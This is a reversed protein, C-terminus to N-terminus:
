WALTTGGGTGVPVGASAAPAAAGAPATVAALSRAGGAFGSSRRERARAAIVEHIAAAKACAAEIASAKACRSPRLTAYVAAATPPIAGGDLDTADPALGVTEFAATGGVVVSEAAEFKERWGPEGRATGFGFGVRKVSVTAGGLKWYSATADADGILTNAIWLASPM